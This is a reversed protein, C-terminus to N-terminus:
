PLQCTLHGDVVKLPYAARLDDNAAWLFAWAAHSYCGRAWDSAPSSIELATDHQRRQHKEGVDAVENFPLGEHSPEHTWYVEAFTQLMERLGALIGILPVHAWPRYVATAMGHAYTSDFCIEVPALHGHRFQLCYMIVWAM